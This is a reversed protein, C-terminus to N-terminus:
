NSARSLPGEFIKLQYGFVIITVALSITITLYPRKKMISKMAFMLNAECGNIACIRKSRPSMFESAVLSYRILIYIRLFSFSLLIDNWTYSFTVKFQDNYETWYLQDLFPYPSILVLAQETLLDKYWGTSTLNDYETLLGRAKYWELYEMYRLYMGVVLGLSCFCNYALLSNENTEYYEVNKTKIEFIVIGMASGM